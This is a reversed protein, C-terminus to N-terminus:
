GKLSALSVLKRGTLANWLDSSGERIADASRKKAAALAPNEDLGALFKEQAWKGVFRRPHISDLHYVTDKLNFPVPIYRILQSVSRVTQVLCFKKARVDWMIEVTPHRQKLLDTIYQPVQLGAKRVFNRNM